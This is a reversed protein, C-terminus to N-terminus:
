LSLNLTNKRLEMLGPMEKESIRIKSRGLKHLNIDKIQYPLQPINKKSNQKKSKM